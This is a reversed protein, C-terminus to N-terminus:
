EPRLATVIGIVGGATMALGVALRPLVVQLAATSAAGTELNGGPASAATLISLLALGELISIYFGIGGIALGLPIILINKRTAIKSGEAMAVDEVYREAERWNVGTRQAVDFVVDKRRRHKSLESVVFNSLETDEYLSSM